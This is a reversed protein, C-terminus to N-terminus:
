RAALELMRELPAMAREANDPLSVEGLKGELAALVKEPGVMAMNPCIPPTAPFYIRKGQGATLRSIEAAVGVVTLVIFERADSQAIHEIIQKTSGIYDAERLM